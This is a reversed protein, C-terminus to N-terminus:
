DAAEAKARQDLRAAGVLELEV